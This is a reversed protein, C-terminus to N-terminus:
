DGLPSSEDKISGEKKKGRTRLIVVAAVVV